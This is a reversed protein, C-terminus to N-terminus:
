GRGPFFLFFMLELSVLKFFTNGEDSEVGDPQLLLTNEMFPFHKRFLICGGEGGWGGM